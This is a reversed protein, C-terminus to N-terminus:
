NWYQRAEEPAQPGTPSGYRRRMDAAMGYTWELRRGTEFIWFTMDQINKFIGSCLAATLSPPQSSILMWALWSANSHDWTGVRGDSWPLTAAWACTDFGDEVDFTEARPRFMWRYEGDSAYRGRQDQVVATYGRPCWRPSM